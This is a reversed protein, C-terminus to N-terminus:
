VHNSLMPRAVFAALGYLVAAVVIVAAFGFHMALITALVASVVSACGNLGWAWPVFQPDTRSVTSLGLPFPMGMFFALPAILALSLTVRGLDPLGALREFIPGLAFLYVLASVIIGAAAVDVATLGTRKATLLRRELQASFGSGVGAFVLFGAVVVAVAYIPRGLFLVFRQIFAIEVFLFALGLASFYAALRWTAAGQPSRRLGLGLPLLILFASLLVAQVLTAFVILEGWDLLAAGGVRRLSLLEPLTRWKFFDFFYPRDDTSPSIDFKYSDVFAEREPGLLANIGDFLYPEPLINRRNAEAADMGPYYALDFSRTASFDKLAAINQPSVVGQKVLVTATDPGRIVVLREGPNAVGQRELAAIATAVLRLTDIPPLRLWRTLSLWGNAQLRDLYLEFAEVTYIYSESLGQVGSLATGLADLLPIQIVDWRRSARAIFNRAEALRISTDEREHFRGAFDAYDVTVLRIMDPNLEVADITAADHHIAQLVANGGGAGLVLVSPADTLAYALADTTYGLYSTDSTREDFRNIATLGDGDTFVAIQEPPVSPANLSLGPVYRFPVTPSKVASVLGLPGSYERGLVANKVQLATSLPKYQSINLDTWTGPLALWIGAGVVAAVVVAAVSLNSPPSAAAVLAAFLALMAVALLADMPSLLMLALVVGLAGSGSGVLNWLYVRNIARPAALFALGIATAGATFPVALLGYMAGLYILGSPEWVIELANFPLQQLFLFSAVATLAFITSASVFAVQFRWTLWGRSLTLFTGSIGFGLLAISIAMYAFHHWQVISLLRVLLVEYALVAASVLALALNSLMM